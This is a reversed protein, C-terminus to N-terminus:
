IILWISVSITVVFKLENDVSYKCYRLFLISFHTRQVLHIIIHKTDEVVCYHTIRQLRTVFTSGGQRDCFWRDGSTWRLRIHTFVDNLEKWSMSLTWYHDDVRCHLHVQIWLGEKYFWWVILLLHLRTHYM